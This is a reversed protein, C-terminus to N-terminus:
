KQLWKADLRAKAEEWPVFQTTGEALSREREELILRHREPLEDGNLESQMIQILNEKENRSLPRIKEMLEGVLSPMTLTTM